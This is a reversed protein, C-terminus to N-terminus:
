PADEVAVRFHANAPFLDVLGNPGEEQKPQHIGRADDWALLPGGGQESIFCPEGPRIDRDEGTLVLVQNTGPIPVHVMRLRPSEHVLWARSARDGFGGFRWDNRAEVTLLDHASTLLLVRSGNPALDGDQLERLADFSVTTGGLDLDVRM